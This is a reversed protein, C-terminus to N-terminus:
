EVVLKATAAKGDLVMRIIYVGSALPTVDCQGAACPLAIAKGNVDFALVSAGQWATPVVFYESTPNPMLQVHPMADTIGSPNPNYYSMNVVFSESFCDYNYTVKIPITSLSPTSTLINILVPQAYNALSSVSMVTDPRAVFYPSTSSFGVTVTATEVGVNSVNLPLNLTTNTTTFSALTTGIRVLSKAAWAHAVNAWINEEALPIIRDVAPWFGDDDNGVEPTMALIKPKSTQEGYMWDDSDGNVIYGVTQDGTGFLYGNAETLTIALNVFIASDPTYIGYDYGWPYILLNSYTHYNLCNVFQHGNCFDRMAATEPESFAATGRYTNDSTFPSSGEDDYGWFHGYNRNLDVGFTGDLNDRRNKRWMGGGDPSISYNYAYGDPNLMPVFWMARENLLCSLTDNNAYNYLLYQMYFILQSVSEAERAHHVATYLVEPEAENVNANDSIRVAYIPRGEVSTGIVQKASILGPYDLIMSDLEANVEDLTLYGGMSGYNFHPTLYESVPMAMKGSKARALREVYFQQMDYILVETNCSHQEVYKWESWSLEAVFGKGQKTIGEMDIGHQDFHELGCASLEFYGRVYKEILLQASSASAVCLLCLSLLFHKM